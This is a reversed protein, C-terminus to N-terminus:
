RSGRSIEEWQEQRASTYYWPLLARELTTVALFMTISLLSVIMIAAFVQDVLYSHQSRLMFIGLGRSAGVWEGIVAGIVAYTVAIKLGSFFLPLSAPLRAKLFVQRRNAGMSRLLSVLDPDVSRLGDATNVAIPFFCVLAVIIVKPLVGFGFWVILLPAIAIIPVTQSAVLLPYLTRRLLPASDIAFALLLGAVLALALGLWTEYLTQGSHMWLLERTEWAALLIQSPGPLLWNPTNLIRVVTEWVVLLLAFLAAPAVVANRRQWWSRTQPGRGVTDDASVAPTTPWAGRQEGTM